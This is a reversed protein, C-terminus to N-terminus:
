GASRLRVLLDEAVRDAGQGVLIGDPGFHAGDIAVETLQPAVARWPTSSDAPDTQSARYYVVPHHVPGPTYDSELLPEAPPAASSAPVEDRLLLSIVTHIRSVLLRVRDALKRPIERALRQLDRSEWIARYKARRRISRSGRETLERGPYISDVLAEFAVPHGEAALALGVEHAVHGARSNGLVAIPRGGAIAERVPPSEVVFNASEHFDRLVALGLFRNGAPLTVVAMGVEPPLQQILPEFTFRANWAGILVLLVRRPDGENLVEIDAQEHTWQSESM